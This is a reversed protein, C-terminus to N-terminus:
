GVMPEMLDWVRDVELEKQCRLDMPCKALLCPACEVHRRVVVHRRGLPRKWAPDNPGFLVVCSAGAHGALHPLSGDAAVVMGYVALTQTLDIAREYDFYSAEGVLLEALRRGMGRGGSWGGVTVHRGRVILRRALELWREIEWEHNEGFDSDPCVLVAGGRPDHGPFFPAFFEPQSVPVGLEEVASLYYRVRHELPGVEAKLTDTSRKELGAGAVALRRPIGAAQFVEAAFGAEWALSAKWQDRLEAAVEKVAAGKAYAWVAVGTLTRWFDEQDEACLVGVGVGSAAMARVAPMAFCAEDLRQPAAVLMGGQNIMPGVRAAGVREAGARNQEARMKM